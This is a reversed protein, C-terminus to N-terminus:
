PANAFRYAHRLLFPEGPRRTSRSISLLDGRRTLVMRVRVPQGNDQGPGEAVLTVDDARGGSRFEVVPMGPEEGITLTSRAADVSWTEISEVTKGPGDDFTFALRGDGDGAMRTPLIVRRDNGYDRYSLTGTWRGAVIQGPSPPPPDVNSKAVAFARDRGAEFDVRTQIVPVDVAVGLGSDFREIDTRNWANPIRVRLGSNPLTMLFIHGATPGEASGSSDEGVVRAGIKEKLQAITRTAGSANAASTLLTVRGAFRDPSVAQRVVSEDDDDNRPLREWWGSDLHRFGELPAEFLAQRDGWSDLYRPLDGYRVAKLLVPKSWTFPERLLYRGLAVSVDESGGGNDRLDVILHGVGRSKLTKFFGGLFATADVPNRYNVFTGIRLVAAQDAVRWRISKYFEDRWSEGSSALTTWRAFTIPKLTSRSLRTDGGHQWTLEWTAPFGFFAPWYEDVDDGMLDSDGALKSAIAQETRGDYAVARGLTALVVPVPRGNIAVIEAGRPPADPQGDNSVVLMQGEILAFRIPLHTAQTSRYSEIATSPEPKTHDCRIEALTSAIGRWLALDDSGDKVDTELRAFAADIEDKSRYRYLGPHITELARRMLRVDDLAQSGGLPRPVYVAEAAFASAVLLSLLGALIWRIPRRDRCKM